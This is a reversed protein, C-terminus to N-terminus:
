SARVYECVYKIKGATLAATSITMQVVGAAALYVKDNRTNPTGEVLPSDFVANATLSGVAVNDLLADEDGGDIGVDVVASGGSTCATLVIAYFDVIIIAENATFLDFDGAAGGDEAFDYYATAVERANSHGGGIYKHSAVLAM